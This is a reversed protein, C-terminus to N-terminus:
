SKKFEKSRDNLVKLLWMSCPACLDHYDPSGMLKIGLDITTFQNIGEFETRNCVDCILGRMRNWVGSWLLCM